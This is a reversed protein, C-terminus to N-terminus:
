SWFNTDKYLSYWLQYLWHKTMYLETLKELFGVLRNRL